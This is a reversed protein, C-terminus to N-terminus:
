NARSRPQQTSDVPEGNMHRAITRMEALVNEYGQILGATRQFTEWNPSSRISHYLGQTDKDGNLVRVIARELMAAFAVDSGDLM